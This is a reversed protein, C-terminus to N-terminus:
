HKMQASCEINTMLIQKINKRFEEENILFIFYLMSFIKEVCLIERWLFEGFAERKFKIKNSVKSMSSLCHRKNNNNEFCLCPLYINHFIKTLFSFFDAWEIGKCM